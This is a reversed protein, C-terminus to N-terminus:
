FINKLNFILNNLQEVIIGKDEEEFEQIQNMIRTVESIQNQSVLVLGFSWNFVKEPEDTDRDIVLNVSYMHNKKIKKSLLIKSMQEDYLFLFSGVVGWNNWGYFYCEGNLVYFQFCDQEYNDM